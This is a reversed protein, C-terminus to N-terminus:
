LLMYSTVHSTDNVLQKVDFVEVTAPKKELSYMDNIIVILQQIVGLMSM